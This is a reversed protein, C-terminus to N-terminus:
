VATKAWFAIKLEGPVMEELFVAERVTRALIKYGAVPPPYVNEQNQFPTMSGNFTVEPIASFSGLGGNPGLIHNQAGM